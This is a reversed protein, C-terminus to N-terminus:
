YNMDAYIRKAVNYTAEGLIDDDPDAFDLGVSTAVQILADYPPNEDKLGEPAYKDRAALCTQLLRETDHYVRQAHRCSVENELVGILALPGGGSDHAFCHWQGSKPDVNFNTSKADQTSTGGHKPHPGQWDDHAPNRTDTRYRGFPGTDAVDAIELQYYPNETARLNPAVSTESATTPTAGGDPTAPTQKDAYNDVLRDIVDQADPIADKPTGQIHRWTCGTMRGRDYMEIQGRHELDAIVKGCGDPLEGRVWAHVGSEEKEPNLFSRSVEAYGGLQEIIDWAEASIKGDVIVDDLDVFFLDNDASAPPILITPEVNAPSSDPPFPYREGLRETPLTATASAQQYTTRPNVPKDQAWEAPYM